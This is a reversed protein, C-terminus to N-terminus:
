LLDSVNRKDVISSRASIYESPYPVNDVVHNYMYVIPDHGQGFADQNIVTYIVGSQVYPILEPCIDFGIVSTQGEMGADVIARAAAELFGNTLFLVKIDKERGLWEVTKTYVDNADDDVSVEEAIKVGKINRLYDRFGRNRDVNGLVNTRGMLIGVTGEKNVAEAAAKGAVVGQSFSDAWFCAERLMKNESDCNFTMLKIGEDRARTM